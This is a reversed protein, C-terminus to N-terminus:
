GFRELLPECCKWCAKRLQDLLLAAVYVGAVFLAALLLYELGSHETFLRIAFPKYYQLFINPNTHLLFVAFSSAAMWNVFRSQLKIKSFFLLLYLASLIVSPSLYSLLKVEAIDFGMRKVYVSVLSEAIIIGGFISLDVWKSQMTLRSPYLRVYRALLYLGIFSFTSYGNNIFEAGTSFWGFLLQFAYFCLLVRRLEREGSKEIYANLLPALICLGLYAKIFWNWKLMLLCGFIGEKNLVALGLALMVAYIGVLFFLCQFLFNSMNKVRPRIGFWGSIFVFVNVCIVSLSQFFYRTFSSM